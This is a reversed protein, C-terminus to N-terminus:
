DSGKAKKCLKYDYAYVANESVQKIEIIMGPRAGIWVVAADKHSIAGLNHESTYYASLVDRIDFISHEPVMNQKFIETHFIKYLHDESYFPFEEQKKAIAKYIHSTLPTESIFCLNTLVGETQKPLDGKKKDGNLVKNLMTKFDGSKSAYDSNPAILVTYNNIAGRINDATSSSRILIYDNYKMDNQFNEFSLQQSDMTMQRYKTLMTYVNNYIIYLKKM